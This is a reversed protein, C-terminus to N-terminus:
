PEDSETPPSLGEHQAAAIAEIMADGRDEAEYPDDVVLYQGPRSPDPRMTAVVYPAHDYEPQDRYGVAVAGDGHDAPLWAVVPYRENTIASPITRPIEAHPHGPQGTREIADITAQLHSAVETFLDPLLSGALFDGELEPTGLGHDVRNQSAQAQVAGGDIHLTITTFSWDGRSFAAIAERTYAYADPTSDAPDSDPDPRVHVTITIGGVAASGDPHGDAIRQALAAFTETLDPRGPDTDAEASPAIDRDALTPTSADPTDDNSM